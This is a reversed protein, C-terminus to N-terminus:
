RYTLNNFTRGNETMIFIKDHKFLPKVENNNFLIFCFVDRTNHDYTEDLDAVHQREFFKEFETCFNEYNYDRDIIEYYSGISFNKQTNSRTIIRLTYM